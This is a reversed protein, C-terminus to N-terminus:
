GDGYVIFELLNRDPDRVYLSTGTGRGGELRTPGAVVEAGAEALRANLADLSGDWVFCLDGCGPEASPGRLSFDPNEFLAPAHFNIKQHGFAAVFVPAGSERWAEPDPVSFGLRGYFTIMAEPQRTPLAVHDFGAIM